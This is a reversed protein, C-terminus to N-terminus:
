RFDALRYITAAPAQPARRKRARALLQRDTAYELVQQQGHEDLTRFVALLQECRVEAPQTITSMDHERRTSDALGILLV